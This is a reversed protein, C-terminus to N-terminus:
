HFGPVPPFAGMGLRGSLLTLSTANKPNGPTYHLSRPLRSAATYLRHPDDDRDHLTNSRYKSVYTTASDLTPSSFRGGLVPWRPLYVGRRTIDDADYKWATYPTTTPTWYVTFIQIRCACHVVHPLSTKFHNKNTM